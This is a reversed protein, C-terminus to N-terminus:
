PMPPSTIGMNELMSKTVAPTSDKTVTPLNTPTIPVLYGSIVVSFIDFTPTFGAFAPGVYLTDAYIATKETMYYQTPLRFNTNQPAFYFLNAPGGAVSSNLIVIPQIPGHQTQAAGSISIYEVVLRMGTPIAVPTYSFNAVPNVTVTAVFPNQGYNQGDQAAAPLACFVVLVGFLLVLGSFMWTKSKM